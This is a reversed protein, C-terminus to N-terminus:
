SISSVSASRSTTRSDEPKGYECISSSNPLISLWEEKEDKKKFAWRYLEYIGWNFWDVAAGGSYVKYPLSGCFKVADMLPGPDKAKINIRSEQGRLWEVSRKLGRNLDDSDVLMWLAGASLAYLLPAIPGAFTAAFGIAGITLYIGQRLMHHNNSLRVENIVFNIEESNQLLGTEKILAWCDADVNSEVWSAYKAENQMKRRWNNFIEPDKTEEFKKVMAEFEYRFYFADVLGIIAWVTLGAYFIPAAAIATAAVTSAAAVGFAVIALCVLGVGLSTFAAAFTASLIHRTTGVMTAKEPESVWDKHVACCSDFTANVGIGLILVGHVMFLAPMVSAIKVVTGGGNLASQGFNQLHSFVNRTVSVFDSTIGMAEIIYKYFSQKTGEEVKREIQESPFAPGRDVLEYSNNVIM